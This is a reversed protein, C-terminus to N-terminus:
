YQDYDMKPYLPDKPCAGLFDFPKDIGGLSIVNERSALRFGHRSGIRQRCLVVHERLHRVDYSFDGFALIQLRPLGNSGFAWRAFEFLEYTKIPEMLNGQGWGSEIVRPLTEEMAGTVTWRNITDRLMCPFEDESCRAHLLQLSQKSAHLELTRRLQPLSDCCGLSVLDSQHMFRQMAGTFSGGSDPPKFTLTKDGIGHDYGWDKVGREHYLLKKMTAAHCMMSEFYQETTVMESFTILLYLQRLSNFSRLFATLSSGGWDNKDAFDDMLLGLCELKLPQATQVIARLLLHTDKCRHLKLARLQSFDFAPLTEDSCIPLCVASLSLTTLTPFSNISPDPSLPLIHSTFVRTDEPALGTKCGPNVQSWDILDLGLSELIKHNAALFIRLSQLESALRLGIWSFTRLCRFTDLVLPAPSPIIYDGNDWINTPTATNLYLSEINQQERQLHGDVGLIDESVCSRLDWSRKTLKFKPVREPFRVM